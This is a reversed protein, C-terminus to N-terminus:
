CPLRTELEVAICWQSTEHVHVVGIGAVRELSTRANAIHVALDTGASGVHHASGQELMCLKYRIERGLEGHLNGLRNALFSNNSRSEFGFYTAPMRRLGHM